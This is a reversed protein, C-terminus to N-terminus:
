AIYRAQAIETGANRANAGHVHASCHGSSHASAPHRHHDGPHADRADDRGDGARDRRWKRRVEEGGAVPHEVRREPLGDVDAAGGPGDVCPRTDRGVLAADHQLAVGAPEDDPVALAGLEVLRRQLDDSRLRHRCPLVRLVERGRTARVEDVPLHAGDDPEAFRRGDHVRALRDSSRDGGTVAGHVQVPRVGPHQALERPTGVLHGAREGRRLAVAARERDDGVLRHEDVRRGVRDVGQARGRQLRACAEPEVGGVRDPDGRVVDGSPDGHQVLRLVPHM